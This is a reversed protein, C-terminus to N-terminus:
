LEVYVRSEIIQKELFWANEAQNGETKYSIECAIRRELDQTSAKSKDVISLERCIHGLASIYIKSLQIDYKNHEVSTEAPDSLPSWYRVPVEQKNPKEQSSTVLPISATVERPKSTCASLTMVCLAIPIIIFKKLM